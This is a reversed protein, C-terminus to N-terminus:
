FVVGGTVALPWGFRGQLGLSRHLYYRAGFGLNVMLRDWGGEDLHAIVGFEPVFALRDSVGIAWQLAATPFAEMDTNGNFEAFTVDAGLSLALEDRASYEFTGSILPIDARAGLGLAGKWTIAVHGDLRLPLLPERRGYPRSQAAGSASWALTGAAVFLAILVGRLDTNRRWRGRM